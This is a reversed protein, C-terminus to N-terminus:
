RLVFAKAAKEGMEQMKEPDRLQARSRNKKLSHWRSDDGCIDSRLRWETRISFRNSSRSALLYDSALKFIDGSEDSNTKAVGM